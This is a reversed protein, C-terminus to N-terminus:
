EVRAFQAVSAIPQNKVPETPPAKSNICAIHDVIEAFAEGVIAYYVLKGDRRTKVLGSQRLVALQQSLTPQGVGSLEEIEGVNKDEGSLSQLITYRIPHAIAKLAEIPPDSQM